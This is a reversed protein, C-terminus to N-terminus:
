GLQYTHVCVNCVKVCVCVTCVHECVERAVRVCSEGWVCWAHVCGDSVLVDWEIM